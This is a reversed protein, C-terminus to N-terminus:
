GKPQAPPAVAPIDASVPNNMTDYWDIRRTVYMTIALATFSLGAGILLAYDELLLLVYQMIYVLSLVLFTLAGRGFGGFVAISYLSTLTITAGAAIAFAQNISSHESLALLLLYFVIQALGILIYQAAHIRKKSTTELLFYMLMLFGIFFIAYKLARSVRRYGDTPTALNVTFQATDATRISYRGEQWSAPVGRALYPVSWSATFGESSIERDDPLYQGDFGPHPWNSRITATTERGSAVLQLYAAGSLTFRAEFDFESDETVGTVPARIGRWSPNNMTFRINNNTVDFPTGPEFVPVQDQGLIIFGVDTDIGRLDSVAMVLEAEDWLIEAGAPMFQAVDFRSFRGRMAIDAEYVPIDYIARQLLEVTQYVQYDLEAASFVVTETRIRTEEITEDGRNIEVIETVRYPITLFPGRVVQPGGYAAGVEVLAENARNAREWALMNVFALPIALVVVILGVLLIKLGLSRSAKRGPAAGVGTTSQTM